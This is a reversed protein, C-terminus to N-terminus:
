LLYVLAIVTSLICCRLLVFLAERGAPLQLFLSFCKVNMIQILRCM